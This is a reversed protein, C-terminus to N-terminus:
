LRNEQIRKLYRGRRIGVAMAMAAALVLPLTAPEPVATSAVSFDSITFVGPEGNNDDTAVRFGFIDGGMVLFSASGFQGTTDALPTFQDGILYGARDFTPADLSFYIYQFEIPGPGTAIALLDTTGSLGSGNNGGTLIVSIGGDPSVAGGDANSNTCVFDSLPYPISAAKAQPVLAAGAMLVSLLLLRPHGWKGVATASPLRSPACTRSVLSSCPCITRYSV